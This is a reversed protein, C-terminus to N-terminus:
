SQMHFELQNMALRDALRSIFQGNSPRHAASIQEPQFYQMWVQNDRKKWASEIATRISREVQVPDCKFMSAVTPYLDKTISILPDDKALLIAERLYSYGRHRTSFSLSSLMNSVQTRPNPSYSDTRHITRALDNVRSVAAKLSCPKQLLYAVGLNAATEVIYPSLLSSTALVVPCIGADLADQLLTIGDVEPLLLDLILLDPPEQKLAELARKGNSCNTIHYSGQLADSLATRFLDNGEAILIHLTEM